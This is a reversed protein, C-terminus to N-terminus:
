SLLARELLTSLVDATRQRLLAWDSNMAIGIIENHGMAPDAGHRIEQCSRWFNFAEQERMTRAAMDQM